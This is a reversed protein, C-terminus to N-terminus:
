LVLVKLKELNKVKSNKKFMYKTMMFILILRNGMIKQLALKYKQLILIIDEETIQIEEFISVINM